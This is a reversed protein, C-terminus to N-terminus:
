LHASPSNETNQHQEQGRCHQSSHRSTVHNAISCSSAPVTYPQQPFLQFHMESMCAHHTCTNYPDWGLELFQGNSSLLIRRATLAHNSCFRQLRSVILPRAAMLQEQWDTVAAYALNCSQRATSALAAPAYPMRIDPHQWAPQTQAALWSIISPPSSFRNSYTICQQQGLQAEILCLREVPMCEHPTIAITVTVQM